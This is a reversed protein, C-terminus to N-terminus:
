ISSESREGRKELTSQLLCSMISLPITENLGAKYKEYLKEFEKSFDISVQKHIGRWIQFEKKFKEMFIRSFNTIFNRLQILANTYYILYPPNRGVVIFAVGNDTHFVFTREGIQIHDPSNGFSDQAYLQIAHLLACKSVGYRKNMTFFPIGRSDLVIVDEIM